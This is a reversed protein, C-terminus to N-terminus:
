LVDPVLRIECIVTGRADRRRWSKGNWPVVSRAIIRGKEPGTMGSRVQRIGVNMGEVPGKARTMM